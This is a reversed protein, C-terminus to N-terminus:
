FVAVLLDEEVCETSAVPLPGPAYASCRYRELVLGHAVELRGDDIRRQPRAHGLGLEFSEPAGQHLDVAVAGEIESASPEKGAELGAGSVRAVVLLGHARLVELPEPWEGRWQGEAPREHPDVC